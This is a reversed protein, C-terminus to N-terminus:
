EATCSGEDHWATSSGPKQNYNWQTANWNHSEHSVEDGDTYATDSEWTSARATADDDGGDGDNSDSNDGNAFDATFETFDSDDQEGSETRLFLVGM